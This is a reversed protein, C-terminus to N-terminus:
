RSHITCVTNYEASGDYVFSDMLEISRVQWRPGQYWAHERLWTGVHDPNAERLRAVTLHPHTPRDAPAIGTMMVLEEVQHILDTLPESPLMGLWLVNSRHGDRYTPFTGVGEFTLPFPSFRITSLVGALEEMRDSNTQGIFRLTIHWQEPPTWRAGDIGHLLPQVAPTIEPDPTISVFLRHM